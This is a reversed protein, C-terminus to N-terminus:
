CLYGQKEKLGISYFIEIRQQWFIEREKLQAHKANSLFSFIRIKLITTAMPTIALTYFNCM